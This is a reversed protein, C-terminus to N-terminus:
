KIFKVNQELLRTSANLHRRKERHKVKSCKSNTPDEQCPTMDTTRNHQFPKATRNHQFPKATRNHQSPKATRNHQSPKATRAHQSPKATRAHQSPKATRAHQSPKASVTCGYQGPHNRCFTDVVMGAACSLCEKTEHTCCEPLSKKVTAQLRKRFRTATEYVFASQSQMSTYAVITSAISLTLLLVVYDGRM